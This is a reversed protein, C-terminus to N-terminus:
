KCFVLCLYISIIVYYIESCMLMFGFLVFSLYVYLVRLNVVVWMCEGFSVSGRRFDM